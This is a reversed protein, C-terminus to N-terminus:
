KFDELKKRFFAELAEAHEDKDKDCCGNLGLRDANWIRGCHGCVDQRDPEVSASAVEEIKLVETRIDDLVKMESVPVDMSFRQCRVDLYYGVIKTKLMTM